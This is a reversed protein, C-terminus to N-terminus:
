GALGRAAALALARQVVDDEQAWRWGWSATSWVVLIGDRVEYVLREDPARVGGPPTEEVGDRPRLVVAGRVNQRAAVDHEAYYVLRGHVEGGPLRGRMVAVARGPSPTTPFARHFALPDEHELGHTRAYDVFSRAWPAPLESEEWVPPPLAEEFPRPAARALAVAALHRGLAVADGAHADLAAAAALYGNRRLRLTGYGFDVELYGDQHGGLVDAAPGAALDGVVDDPIAPEALLRWGPLGFPALDRAPPSTAAPLREARQVHLWPALGIAEPVHVAAVTCPIWVADADFPEPPGEERPPDLFNGLIPIDTRNPLFSRWSQGPTHRHVHHLTGGLGHRPDVEFLEHLLVGYGGGPLPGRMVNFQYEPFRPQARKWGALMANGLLELGRRDAYESLTVAPRGREADEVDEAAFAAYGHGRPRDAM